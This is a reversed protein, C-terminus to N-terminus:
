TSATSVAIQSMSTAGWDPFTPSPNRSYRALALLSALGSSIRRAKFSAVNAVGIASLAWGGVAIAGAVTANNLPTDISGFAPTLSFVLAQDSVFAYATGGGEISASNTLPSQAWASVNAVVTIPPYSSGPSLSDSRTCVAGSCTWGPGSLSTLEFAGKPTDTVTVMGATPAVGTNAATITYAVDSQGQQFNGMHTKALTWEAGILHFPVNSKLTGGPTSVQVFGETVGAPVLATLQSATNINFATEVGNFTVATASGINNGFIEIADGVHAAFPLLKVFPALGTSFRFLSGVMHSGGNHTTGYFSGDTGQVMGIPGFELASSYLTTFDGDPTIKFISGQNACITGFATGYFNGDNAQAIWDPACGEAGSFTHLTTLVGGPTVRYITGCLGAFCGPMGGYAGTGYFNGDTGQVLAGLSWGGDASTFAVLTSARGDPTLKFLVGPGPIGGTGYFNGDTGQILPAFPGGNTADFSYLLTFVGFSSVKFFTGQDYAGGNQTTGYFDGDTGQVLAARPCNGDAGNFEHLTRLVGDPTLVFITGQSPAPTYLDPCTTGYLNEDTGLVLGGFPETGGNWPFDYIGRVMGDPTAKFVAGIVDTFVLNATTGYFNLDPGEVLTSTPTGNVSYFSALTTFTQAPLAATLAAYLVLMAVYRHKARKGFIFHAPM